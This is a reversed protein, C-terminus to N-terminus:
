HDYFNPISEGKEYCNEKVLKEMAQEALIVRSFLGKPTSSSYLKKPYKAKGGTKAVVRSDSHFVIERLDLGATEILEELKSKSKGKVGCVCYYYWTAEDGGIKMEKGCKNCPPNKKEEKTNM